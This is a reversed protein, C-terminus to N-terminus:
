HHQKEQSSVDQDQQNGGTGTAIIIAFWLRNLGKLHSVAHSSPHDTEHVDPTGLEQAM